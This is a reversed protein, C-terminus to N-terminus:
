RGSQLRGVLRHYEDPTDVDLFPGDDEMQLEIGRAAYARVLDRASAGPDAALLDATLPPAVVMPHGHRGARAPRVLPARSGIWTDVLAAVLRADILPVDVLTVVVAPADLLHQLGRQLSSLQGRDPHPNVVWRVAAELESPLAAGAARDDPSVIVVVPSAGGGVLASAIHGLFTHGGPLRLAAKPEGMRSSRGAALVIAPLM